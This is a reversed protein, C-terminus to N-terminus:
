LNGERIARSVHHLAEHPRPLQMRDWGHAEITALDRAECLGTAGWWPLLSYSRGNHTEYAGNELKWFMGGSYWRHGNDSVLTPIQEMM